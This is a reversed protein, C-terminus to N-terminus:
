EKKKNVKQIKKILERRNFESGSEINITNTQLANLHAGSYAYTNKIKLRTMLDAVKSMKDSLDTKIKLLNVLAEKSATTSDGGNIVMEAFEDIFGSVEKRDQKIDNALEEMFDLYKADSILMTVDKPQEPLTVNMSPILSEFQEMDPPEIIKSQEEEIEIKEDAM